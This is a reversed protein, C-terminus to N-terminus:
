TAAAVRNRGARKARYLAEDARTLVDTLTEDDPHPAAVGISITFALPGTEPVAMTMGGVASRLREAAVAAAEPPTEPLLAVFEEGGLRCLMDIERLQGLCCQVMAKLANDGVAHGYTDNIRKFNDIDLMLVSLPSGYRSARRMERDGQDMLQRRNGIGTLPDTTALRKLEDEMAKRGSIDNFSMLVGPEGDLSMAIAAVLAWFRHGDFAIVQAEFDEVKEEAAVRAMLHRRDEPRAWISRDARSPTLGLLLRARENAYMVRGNSVRSIVMPVVSTDLISRLRTESDRLARTRDAVRQELTQNLRALADRQHAITRIRDFARLGAIVVSILRTDTLEARSRYDNIDYRLIVDREPVTGPQGTRLVIRTDEIVLTERITRVLRLGADETEMVVDLLIVAVDGHQRLITEAEAASGAHLLTIGREAFRLDRLVMRTITHVDPDDDVVLITWPPLAQDPKTTEPEPAGATGTARM